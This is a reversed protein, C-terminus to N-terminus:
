PYPHPAGDKFGGYAKFRPHANHPYSPLCLTLLDPSYMRFVYFGLDMVDPTTLDLALLRKNAKQFADVLFHVSEAADNIPYRPLESARCRSTHSFRQGMIHRNAPLAYYVVNMDLDGITMPDTAFKYGLISPTQMLGVTALGPIAVAEIFAKYIALELDLECAIGVCSAPIENRLNWLVCAVVHGPLDPNRLYYFRVDITRPISVQKELIHLIIPTRQDLVLEPAPTASYWYGMATDMQILELLASAIAKDPITHAASGTTVATCIRPEGQETRTLYGVLTTQAPLWTCKMHPLMLAKIWGLPRDIDFQEYPFLQRNYQDKTFFDLDEPRIVTFKQRVMERYSAFIIESRHTLPYVMHAYRECTEGFVRMFAELPYLGYGGIHYSFPRDLGLLRHIGTLQAVVIYLGLGKGPHLAFGVARNLGCLPSVMRYMFRTLKLGVNFQYGTTVVNIANQM